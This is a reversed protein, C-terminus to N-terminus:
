NLGSSNHNLSDRSKEKNITLAVIGTKDSKVSLGVENCCTEITLLAWQMFGSVTNPFKGVGHRCTMLTDKFLFAEV